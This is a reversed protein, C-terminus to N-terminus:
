GVIQMCTLLNIAPDPGFQSPDFQKTIIVAPDSLAMLMGIYQATYVSIANGWSLLQGVYALKNPQSFLQFEMYLITWRVRTELTYHQNVFETLAANFIIMNAQVALKAAVVNGATGAPFLYTNTDGVVYTDTTGDTSMTVSHGYADQTISTM